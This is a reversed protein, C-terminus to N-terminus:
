AVLEKEHEFKLTMVTNFSYVELVNARRELHHIAEEGEFHTLEQTGKSGKFNLNATKFIGGSHEFKAIISGEIYVKGFANGCEAIVTGTAPKLLLGVTKSAKSIYGLVGTLEKTEWSAGTGQRCFEEFQGPCNTFKLVLHTLEKATVGNGTLSGSGCSFAAGGAQEFSTNGITGTVKESSPTPKLEPLAASASATALAVLALVAVLAILLSKSRSRRM